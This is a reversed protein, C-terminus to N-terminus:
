NFISILAALQIKDNSTIAENHEINALKDFYIKKKEIDIDNNNVLHITIANLLNKFELKKINKFAQINNYCTKFSETSFWKFILQIDDKEYNNTANYVNQETIENYTM